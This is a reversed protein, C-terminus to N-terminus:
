LKKKEFEKILNKTRFLHGLGIKENFNTRIIVEKM